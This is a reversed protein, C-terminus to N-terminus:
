VATHRHNTHSKVHTHTANVPRTVTGLRPEKFCARETTNRLIGYRSRRDEISESHCDPCRSPLNVLNDFEDFGCQSCTPPAVFVQEDTGALSEALTSYM